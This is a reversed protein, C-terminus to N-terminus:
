FKQTMVEIVPTKIIKSEDKLIVKASKGEVFAREFNEM